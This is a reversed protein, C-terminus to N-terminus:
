GDGSRSGPGAAFGLGLVVFMWDYHHLGMVLAIGLHMGAAALAYPRRLARVVFLFFTAELTLTLTGFAQCLALSDAIALRIPLLSSLGGHAHVAVHMALQSGDAWETGSGFLKSAGALTYCAAAVGCAGELGWADAQERDWGQRLVWARVAVYAVLAAGPLVLARNAQEADLPWQAAQLHGGVAYLAVMVAAATGERRKFAFGVTAAVFLLTMAAFGPTSVLADLPLWASLGRPHPVGDIRVVRGLSGWTALLGAAILVRHVPLRM